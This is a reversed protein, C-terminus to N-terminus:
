AAESQPQQLEQTLIASKLKATEDMATEIKDTVTDIQRQLKKFQLVLEDQVERAPLAVPLKRLDSLNIGQYAAGRTNGHLWKESAPSSIWLAIYDANVKCTDIPVMAVERSINWGAMEEPVVAVGGLTGRVNVLVEGGNLITREYERSLEGAIRKMGKTVIKRKRVNSTRLCPIGNEVEEGLKIVGYTIGRNSECLSQLEVPNEAKGHQTLMKELASAILTDTEKRKSSQAAVLKEIEAFAADLKTVIRQQEALPPYSFPVSKIDTQNVSAQNVSQKATRKWYGRQFLSVLFMNFYSSDVADITRLRLLNIGHFLPEKGDYIATKGVHIPSNIHSFLIDGVELRAKLKQQEDLEAFGTKEYNISSDAITEIRTIKEGVGSKDQKCNVGNQILTLADGICGHTWM